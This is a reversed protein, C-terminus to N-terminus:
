RGATPPLLETGHHAIRYGQDLAYAENFGGVVRDIGKPDLFVCARKDEPWGRSCTSTPRAAIHDSHYHTLLVGTIRGMPLQAQGIRVPSRAGVDILFFHEPTVVAICAQAREMSNGLPSASGCVVVKLGDVPEPTSALVVSSVRKLLVDQVAPLRYLIAGATVLLVLTIGATITKRNM